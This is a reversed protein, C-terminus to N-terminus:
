KQYKKEELLLRCVIDYPSQLESTHEESRVSSTDPTVSVSTRALQAVTDLWRMMEPTAVSGVPFFATDSEVSGSSLARAVSSSAKVVGIKPDPPAAVPPTAVANRSPSRQAPPTA